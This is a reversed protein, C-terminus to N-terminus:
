DWWFRYTMQGTGGVTNCEDAIADHQFAKAALDFESTKYEEVNVDNTYVRIKDNAGFKYTWLSVYMAPSGERGIEFEFLDNGNNGNDEGYYKRLGFYTDLAKNITTHNFQNYGHIISICAKLDKFDECKIRYDLNRTSENYCVTTVAQASTKAKSLDIKM